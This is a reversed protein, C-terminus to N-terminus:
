PIMLLESLMPETKDRYSPEFIAVIRAHGLEADVSGMGPVIILIRASPQGDKDCYESSM